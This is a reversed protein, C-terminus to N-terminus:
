EESRPQYIVLIQILLALFALIYIEYTTLLDVSKVVSKGIHMQRKGEELQIDALTRIDSKLRELLQTYANSDETCSGDNEMKELRMMDKEFSALAVSENPTLRTQKFKDIFQDMAMNEMQHQTFLGSTDQACSRETKTNVISLMDLILHQVVLRDEYITELSDQIRRFNNRDIYNTALILFFIITIGLIWQIKRAM